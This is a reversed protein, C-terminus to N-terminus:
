RREERNLARDDSPVDVLPRTARQLFLISFSTDWVPSNDLPFDM